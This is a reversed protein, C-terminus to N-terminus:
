SSGASSTMSATRSATAVPFFATAYGFAPPFHFERVRVQTPAASM